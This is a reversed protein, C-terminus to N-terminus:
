RFTRSFLPATVLGVLLIGLVVYIQFRSLSSEDSSDIVVPKNCGGFEEMVEIPVPTPYDIPPTEGVGYKGKNGYLVVNGKLLPYEVWSSLLVIAWLGDRQYLMPRANTKGINEESNVLGIMPSKDYCSDTGNVKAVIKYDNDRALQMLKEDPKVYIMPLPPNADTSFSNINPVRSPLVIPNWSVIDYKLM